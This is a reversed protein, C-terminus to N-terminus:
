HLFKGFLRIYSMISDKSNDKGIWLRLSAERIEPRRHLAVLKEASADDKLFYDRLRKMLLFRKQFRAKWRKRYAEIDDEIIAQAALEGSKMAYYIGEYTLPLVQGASDGAFLVKGKNFLDGTWVPIRYVKQQGESVIGKREKFKNFLAKIAGAQFTGTGISVGGAAPFVWSYALPAHSSGFWFECADTNIDEIRESETFFSRSPKIGLMTRTKSNIGDAAIIYEASFEHKVGNSDAEAIYTKNQTVGKFDATIIQAGKAEAEKRLIADFEKREVMALGVGKMEIELKEGRPSILWIAKVVKKISSKPIHLEDFVGLSIGGGCPKAFFPNRELLIVDVGNGALFRAASAGAPGGGIVLVKTSLRM